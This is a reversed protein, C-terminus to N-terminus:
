LDIAQGRAYDVAESISVDCVLGVSFFLLSIRYAQLSIASQGVILRSDM